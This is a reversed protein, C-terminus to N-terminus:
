ESEIIANQKYAEKWKEFKEKIDQPADNKLELEFTSENYVCLKEIDFNPKIRM